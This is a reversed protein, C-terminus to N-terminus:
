SKMMPPTPREEPRRRVSDLPVMSPLPYPREMETGHASMPQLAYSIVALLSVIEKKTSVAM